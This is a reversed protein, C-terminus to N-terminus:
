AGFLDCLDATFQYKRTDSSGQIEEVYAAELWWGLMKSIAISDVKNKLSLQLTNITFPEGIRGVSLLARNALFLPTTLAEGKRAEHFKQLLPHRQIVAKM